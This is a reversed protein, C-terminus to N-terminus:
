SDRRLSRDADRKCRFCGDWATPRPGSSLLRHLSRVGQMSRPSGLPCALGTGVPLGLREEKRGSHLDLGRARDFPAGSGPPGCARAPGGASKTLAPREPRSRQAVAQGGRAAPLSSEPSPREDSHGTRLTRPLSGCGCVRVVVVSVGPSRTLLVRPSTVAIRARPLGAVGALRDPPRQPGSSHRLRLGHM